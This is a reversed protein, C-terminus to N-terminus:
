HENQTRGGQIPFINATKMSKDEHKQAKETKMMGGGALSDLMVAEEHIHEPGCPWLLEFTL